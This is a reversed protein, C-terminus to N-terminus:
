SGDEANLLEAKQVAKKTAFLAHEDFLCASKM